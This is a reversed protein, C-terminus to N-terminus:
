PIESFSCLSCSICLHPEQHVLQVCALMISKCCLCGVASRAATPLLHPLPDKGRSVVPSASSFPQTWHKAGWIISCTWCALILLPNFCRGYSPLSLSSLNNLSSCLLSVPSKDIHMLFQSLNWKFYSFCSKRCPHDFVPFPQM